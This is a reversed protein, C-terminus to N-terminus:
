AEVFHLGVVGPYWANIHDNEDRCYVRGTSNESRPPEFTDLTVPEGRFTKLKAGSHVAEGAENVLKLLKRPTVAKNLKIM